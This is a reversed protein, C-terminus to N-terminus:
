QYDQGVKEKLSLNLKKNLSVFAALQLLKGLVVHHGIQSKGWFAPSIRHAKRVNM